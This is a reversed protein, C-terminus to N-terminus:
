NNEADYAENTAYAQKRRYAVIGLIAITALIGGIGGWFITEGKFGLSAFFDIQDEKCKEGKSELIKTGDKCLRPCEEGEKVVLGNPCDKRIKWFPIENYSEDGELSISANIKASTTYILQTGGEGKPMLKATVKITYFGLEKPILTLLVRQNEKNELEFAPTDVTWDFVDELKKDSDILEINIEYNSTDCVRGDASSNYARFSFFAPESLKIKADKWENGNSMTICVIANAFGAMSVAILFLLLVREIKRKNM